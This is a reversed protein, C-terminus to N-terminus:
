VLKEGEGGALRRGAMVEPWGGSGSFNEPSGWFTEGYGSRESGGGVTSMCRWVGSGGSGGVVLAAV